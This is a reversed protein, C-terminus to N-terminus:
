DQGNNDGEPECLAEIAGNKGNNIKRIARLTASQEAVIHENLRLEHSIWDLLSICMDVQLGQKTIENLIETKTMHGDGKM